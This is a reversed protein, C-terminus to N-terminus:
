GSDAPLAPLFWVSQPEHDGVKAVFVFLTALTPCGSRRSKNKGVWAAFLAAHIPCGTEHVIPPCLGCSGSLNLNMTEWGLWLFLLTALIPCGTEDVRPLCLRYSGSLNLNM